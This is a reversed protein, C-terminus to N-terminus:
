SQVEADVYKELKGIQATLDNAVEMLVRHLDEHCFVSGAKESGVAEVTILITSEAKRLVNLIDEMEASPDHLPESARIPIVKAKAM